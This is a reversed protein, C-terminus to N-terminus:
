YELPLAAEGDDSSGSPAVAVAVGGGVVAAVAVVFVEVFDGGAFCVGCFCLFGHEM